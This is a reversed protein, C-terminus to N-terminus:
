NNKKLIEFLLNLDYEKGEGLDEWFVGVKVERRREWGSREREFVIFFFVLLVPCWVLLLSIVGFSCLGNQM